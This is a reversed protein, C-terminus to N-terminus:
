TSCSKVTMWYKRFDYVADRKRLTPPNPPLPGCYFVQQAINPFLLETDWVQFHPEFLKPKWAAVNAFSQVLTKMIESNETQELKEKADSLIKQLDDDSLSVPKLRLM